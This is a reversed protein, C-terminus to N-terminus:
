CSCGRRCRVKPIYGSLMATEAAQLIEVCVSGVSVMGLIGRGLIEDENQAWSYLYTAGGTVIGLPDHMSIIKWTATSEVLVNKFWELQEAGMMTIGGEEYNLPNIDHYSRMDIFFTDIHKGFKQSRYITQDPMPNLEYFSKWDNEYMEDVSTNQPFKPPGEIESPYWNNTM